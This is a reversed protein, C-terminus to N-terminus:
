YAVAVNYTGSYTGAVQGNTVELTGNLTVSDSGSSLTRSSTGSAFDITADMENSAGDDLTIQVGAIVGDTDASTIDFTYASNGAGTVSFIAGSRTAGGTVASVGGTVAGATTITGDSGSVLLTGFEMQTSETIAIATAVVANATANVNNAAFAKSSLSTAAVLSIAVASFKLFNSNKM